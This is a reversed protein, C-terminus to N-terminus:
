SGHSHGRGKAEVIPTATSVNPPCSSRLGPSREPRALQKARRRPFEQAALDFEPLASNSEGPRLNRVKTISCAIAPWESRTSPGPDGEAQVANPGIRYCGFDETSNERKVRLRIRRHPDFRTTNPPREFAVIENGTAVVRNDDANGFAAIHRDEFFLGVVALGTEDM